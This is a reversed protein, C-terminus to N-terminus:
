TTKLIPFLNAFSWFPESVQPFQSPIVAQVQSEHDAWILDFILPFPSITFVYKTETSESTESM